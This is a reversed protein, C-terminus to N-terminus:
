ATMNPVPGYQNDSMQSDQCAWVIFIITGVIPILNILIWWGSKGIDHMRRASIALNPLLLALSVLGSLVDSQFLGSCCGVLFTFLFWWWYESRSSRGNFDAYRNFAMQIAQGFSVQYQYM